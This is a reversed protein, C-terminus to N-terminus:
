KRGNAYFLKQTKRSYQHGDSITVNDFLKNLSETLENSYNGDKNFHKGSSTDDLIFVEQSKNIISDYIYKRYASTTEALCHNSIFITYLETDLTEIDDITVYNINEFGSLNNKCIDLMSIDDILTYNDIRDKYKTMIHKCLSGDAPGIEIICHKSKEKISTTNELMIFQEDIDCLRSVERPEIKKTHWDQWAKSRKEM